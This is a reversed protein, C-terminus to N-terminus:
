TTGSLVHVVKRSLTCWSGTDVKKISLLLAACKFLERSCIDELMSYFPLCTSTKRILFVSPGVIQPEAATARM